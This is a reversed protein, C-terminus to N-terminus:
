PRSGSCDPQGIPVPPEALRPLLPEQPAIWPADVPEDPTARWQHCVEDVAVAYVTLSGDQGIRMRLFSKADEIGQGAYLENVNIGFRHAIILYTCVLQTAVVAVLPAYGVVAIALRLLPHLATIGLGTWL